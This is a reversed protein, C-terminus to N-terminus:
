FKTGVPNCLLGLWVENPKLPHLKGCIFALQNNIYELYLLWNQYGAVVGFVNKFFNLIQYFLLQFATYYIYWYIKWNCLWLRQCFVQKLLKNMSQITHKSLLTTLELPPLDEKHCPAECTGCSDTVCNETRRNLLFPWTFFLEADLCWIIIIIFSPRKNACRVLM